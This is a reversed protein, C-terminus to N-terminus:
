HQGGFSDHSTYMSRWRMSSMDGKVPVIVSEEASSPAVRDAILLIPLGTSCSCDCTSRPPFTLEDCIMCSPRKPDIAFSVFTQKRDPM